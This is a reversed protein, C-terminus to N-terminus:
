HPLIRYGMTFSVDGSGAAPPCTATRLVGDFTADTVPINCTGISDNFAVDSDYLHVAIGTKLTAATLNSLVTASWSPSLTDSVTASTGTTGQCTLEAFPDPLGSFADWSSGDAKKAPVKANVLVVNWTSTGAIVCAGAQCTRGTGCATCANGGTGCASATTGTQCGAATCCGSTCTAKCSTAVCQGKDCASAGGCATCAEGAAGCASTATGVQCGGSADCCGGCTDPGCPAKCQGGTCTAGGSCTECAAGGSGCASEQDGTQCKGDQCCGTCDKCGTATGGDKGGGGGGGGSAAGTLGDKIATFVCAVADTSVTQVLVKTATASLCTSFKAQCATKGLSSSTCEEDVAAVLPDGFPLLAVGLGPTGGAGFFATKCAEAPAVSCSGCYSEVLHTQADTPTLGTLTSGLCTLPDSDCTSAQLCATAATLVSPSLLGAVKTCQEAMTSGCSTAAGGCKTYAAALAGCFSTDSSGGPADEDSSSCAFMTLVSAGVVAIKTWLGFRAKM